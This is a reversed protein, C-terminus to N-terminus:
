RYNGAVTGVWPVAHAGSSSVAMGVIVWLSVL